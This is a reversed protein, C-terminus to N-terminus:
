ANRLSQHWALQRAVGTALDVQPRWGMLLQLRQSSAKTMAVDGAQTPLREVRVPRGLQEAIMDLLGNM